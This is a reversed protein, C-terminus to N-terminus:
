VSFCRNQKETKSFTVCCNLDQRAFCLLGKLAPSPRLRKPRGWHKALAPAPAPAWRRSVSHIFSRLSSEHSQLSVVVTLFPSTSSLGPVRGLVLM